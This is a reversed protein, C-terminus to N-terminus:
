RRKRDSAFLTNLLTQDSVPAAESDGSATASSLTGPFKPAPQTGGSKLEALVKEREEKRIRERYANVDGGIEKAATERKHWEILYGFAHHHRLAEAKINQPAAAYAAEVVADGYQQRAIMESTNVRDALVRQEFRQELHRMAGEPDLLPDPVPESKPAPQVQPPPAQLSALRQTFTAETTKWRAEAEERWKDLEALKAKYAEAEAKAAKRQEREDKLDDLITRKQRSPPQEKPEETTKAVPAADPKVPEAPKVESQVPDPDAPAAGRDRGSSFLNDLLQQDAQVDSM